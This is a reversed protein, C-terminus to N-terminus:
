EEGDFYDIEPSRMVNRNPANAAVKDSDPRM